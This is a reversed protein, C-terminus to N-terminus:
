NNFIMNTIELTIKSKLKKGFLLNFLGSSNKSLFKNILIGFVIGYVLHALTVTIPFGKSFQLGFYGIGLSTVSPSVMFIIGIVLGYIAAYWWRTRGFFLTYVIGFSAGNWFHYAWGVTNSFISPGELFSDTLLVGMLKPLSGPMYGLRFGSERVVELAVTAIIGSIMGAIVLNLLRYKGWAKAIALSIIFIALSPLLFQIALTSMKAYGAQAIPFISPSVAAVLLIVAALLMEQFNINGSNM